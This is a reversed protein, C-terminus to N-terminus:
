NFTRRAQQDPIYQDRKPLFSPVRAARRCHHAKHKTSGSSFSGIIHLSVRGASLQYQCVFKM